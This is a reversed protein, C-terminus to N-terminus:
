LLAMLVGLAFPLSALALLMSLTIQTAVLAGDFGMRAALVHCSSATPLASFLMLVTAQAPPLQLLACLALALLPTLLHRVTLQVGALAKAQALRGFQMDAGASMLGLVVAAGSMRTATPVAWEPVRFGLLNALLGSATAIILPNRLLERMLGRESGKAMPYVAAVNFMPVCFGIVLAMFLLGPAGALREALPLAVFSNFRFGIQASAAQELPAIHERLLPLKPLFYSMAIAGLGLGVAGVVLGSAARVDLPSKVVAFFLLVPFLVWYVLQEVREWVSRDLPTFRCIILGLAILSFDPFLLEFFNM